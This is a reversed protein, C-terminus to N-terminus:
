AGSCFDTDTFTEKCIWCSKNLVNEVLASLYPITRSVLLYTIDNFTGVQICPTGLIYYTEYNQACIKGMFIIFTEMYKFNQVYMWICYLTCLVLVFHGFFASWNKVNSLHWLAILAHWSICWLWTRPELAPRHKRIHLRPMLGKIKKCVEYNTTTTRKMPTTTRLRSSYFCLFIM